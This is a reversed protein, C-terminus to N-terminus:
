ATTREGYAKLVALIAAEINDRHGLFRYCDEAPLYVSADWAHGDYRVWGRENGDQDRVRFTAVAIEDLMGFPARVTAGDSWFTTLFIWRRGVATDLDVRSYKIIVTDTDTMALGEDTRTDSLVDSDLAAVNCPPQALTWGPVSGPM